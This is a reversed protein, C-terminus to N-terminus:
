IAALERRRNERCGSRFKRPSWRNRPPACRSRRRSAIGHSGRARGITGYGPRALPRHSMRKRFKRPSQRNRPPVCRSRRRNATREGAEDSRTRDTAVPEDAPEPAATMASNADAAGHRGTPTSKEAPPWDAASAGSETVPDFPPPERPRTRGPPLMRASGSASPPRGPFRPSRLPEGDAEDGEFEDEAESQPVQVPEPLASALPVGTDESGAGNDRAHDGYDDSSEQLTRAECDIASRSATTILTSKASRWSGM